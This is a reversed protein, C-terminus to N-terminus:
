GAVPVRVEGAVEEYVAKLVANVEAESYLRDPQFFTALWRLIVLM